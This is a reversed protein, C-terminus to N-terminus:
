KKVNTKKPMHKRERFTRCVNRRIIQNLDNRRQKSRSGMKVLFTTWVLFDLFCYTKTEFSLQEALGM